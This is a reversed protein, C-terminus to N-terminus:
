SNNMNNKNNKNNNNINGVSYIVQHATDGGWKNGEDVFYTRHGGWGLLHKVEMLFTPATDEGCNQCKKVWNEQFWISEGGWSDKPSLFKPSLNKSAGLKKSVFSTSWLNKQGLKKSWFYVPIM